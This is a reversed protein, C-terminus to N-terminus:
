EIPEFMCRPDPVLPERTLNLGDAEHGGAEVRREEDVLMAVINGIEQQIDIVNNQHYRRWAKKLADDPV